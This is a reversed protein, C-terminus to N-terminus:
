QVESGIYFNRVFTKVKCRGKGSLRVKFSDCRNPQIPVVIVRSRENHTTYVTQWLESDPRVEVKLWAVAELEIRMSLKSYGKRENMTETFPCFTASWEIVETSESDAADTKYMNGDDAIFYLHGEIDAFDLANTDDEKLWIGKLVDYTYIGTKNGTKMSIYYKNGDSGACASSFRRTGFNESVLEPIGGTFAYVGNRSLYYLTENIICMSRECGAQVGFINSNLIQYNSPKSGYLKHLTDEKFFCIYSGYPICGTFDGDTSVDIYYSDSTLGDFVQFNFPDAYKSGYQYKRFLGM